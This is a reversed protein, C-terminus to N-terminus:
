PAHADSDRLSQAAAAVTALPPTFAIMQMYKRKLQLGYGDGYRPKGTSHGMLEDILEEPAEVAKLRDKFAHRFSYVSLKPTPLLERAKMYKMLTESLNSGKDFYRLFGNRHRKMAELALGVLPIDRESHDTKLLRGEAAIRIHPIDADLMIRAKSLNAIESPQAGTEMVVYVVDRAEDNLGDLAGPALIRNRIHEVTFPSRKGDRGGEIRTGAFVNDLRLQLRKDVAKIM